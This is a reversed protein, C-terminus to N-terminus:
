SLNDLMCALTRMRAYEFDDMPPPWGSPLQSLDAPLAPSRLIWTGDSKVWCQSFRVPTGDANRGSMRIWALDPSVQRTEEVRAGRRLLEQVSRPNNLDTKLGNRDRLQKERNAGLQRVEELIDRASELDNTPWKQQRDPRPIEGRAVRESVLRRADRIFADRDCACPAPEGPAAPVRRRLEEVAQKHLSWQVEWDICDSYGPSGVEQARWCSLAAREPSSRDIEVPASTQVLQARRSLLARALQAPRAFALGPAHSTVQATTIGVVEGRRDILPGGSSGASVLADHQIAGQHIASVMGATFSWVTEQPHGLALVPEGVTPERRALPLRPHRSTDGDLRVLALDTVPDRELLVTPIVEKANEFLYRDLGGDMPTYSTRGPRYLLAGLSKAGDVIHTATIAQDKGGVLLGAGYRVHGDSQYALILVVGPLARAVIEPVAPLPPSPKGDLVSAPAACGALLMWALWPRSVVGM